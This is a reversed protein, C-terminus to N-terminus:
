HQKENGSGHPVGGGSPHSAEAHVQPARPAEHPAAQHAPEKVHYAHMQQQHMRELAQSQAANQRNM